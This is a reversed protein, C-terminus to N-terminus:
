AVAKRPAPVACGGVKLEPPGHVARMAIVRAAAVDRDTSYGCDCAHVRESLKKAKITGCEPCTQSTGRPDVRVVKRGASEAKDSLIGIFQGWAADNVDRALAARALGKVNLNEIAIVSYRRCLDAATQFQFTRRAQRVTQHAVAVRARAKRRRKSGRKCRALARQRRRLEKQAKRGRRPNPIFTGDSLAAFSSLGLDLGIAPANDNAANAEIECVLYLYWHRGERKIRATKPSSPIARHQHVKIRGIGKAWFDQGFRWGLDDVWGISKFWERGKFRPFGGRSFFSNYAFHLARLPAREMSVAYKVADSRLVTLGKCQDFYSRTRGTKRYCDIREELAANYLQRSWELAERLRNHQARTPKLKFRYARLLKDAVTTNTPQNM